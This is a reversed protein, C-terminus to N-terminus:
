RAKQIDDLLEMLAKGYGIFSQYIEEDSAKVSDDHFVVALHPEISIGADYGSELADSLIRRVAGDGKGPLTYDADNKSNDWIADKVHIHVTHEKLHTWFEWPDQKPMPEPKSRDDNFVPNATDFVWKLGPVNELLKLAHQWSMGGYNMCNEHVPTIGADLFRKTIERLRHFREEELQDEGERVAYSMIRVYQSGLRQMRPIAREVESLDFPDDIKKGWNAITSGFCYVGVGGNKLKEEVLDFAEDAIDHLNAKPFGEVEVSRAEITNWGLEKVAKIQTDILAGAEDTIGTLIM